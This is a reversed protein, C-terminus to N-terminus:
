SYNEASSVVAEITRAYRLLRQALQPDDPVNETKVSLEQTTGTSANSNTELRPRKSPHNTKAQTELARKQAIERQARLQARHGPIPSEPLLSKTKSLDLDITTPNSTMKYDISSCNLDSFDIAPKPIKAYNGALKTLRSNEFVKQLHSRAVAKTVKAYTRTKPASSELNVLCNRQNELSSNSLLTTTNGSQNLDCYDHDSSEENDGLIPVFFVKSKVDINRKKLQYLPHGTELIKRMNRRVDEDKPRKPILDEAVHIVASQQDSPNNSSTSTHPKEVKLENVEISFEGVKMTLHFTTESKEKALKSTSLADVAHKRLAVSKDETRIEASIQTNPLVLSGFEKSSNDMTTVDSLILCAPPQRRAYFDSSPNGSRRNRM